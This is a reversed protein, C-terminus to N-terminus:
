ADAALAEDIAEFLREVPSHLDDLYHEWLPDRGPEQYRIRDPFVWVADLDVDRSLPHQLVNRLGRLTEWHEAFSTVARDLPEDSVGQTALKAADFLRQAFLVHAYWDYKWVASSSGAPEWRAIAEPDRPTAIRAYALRCAWVGEVAATRLKEVTMTRSRPRHRGEVRM